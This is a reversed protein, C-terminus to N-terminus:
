VFTIPLDYQQDLGIYCDSLLLVKYTFEGPFLPCVCMLSITSNRKLSIRKMAALGGDPKIIILYWGEQKTKPFRPLFAYNLNDNIRKLSITIDFVKDDLHINNIPKIFVNIRPFKSIQLLLHSVQKGYIGAKRAIREIKEKPTVLLQPLCSIGENEFQKVAKQHVGILTLFPSEDIWRGSGVMQLIEISRIVVETWGKEAVSDIFAQLIRICQDLVSKTDLVFDVIPLTNEGFYASLLLFVKTHPDDYSQRLNGYKVKKALNKCHIDDEHRVPHNNYEAADSIIQLIQAHNLDKKMRTAFMKITRYSIYYMTSLRGNTTTEVDNEDMEICKASVLENLADKVKSVLFKGIQEKGDYGYYNPNKLLRRFYYTFTLFKVAEKVNTVNGVAIEANLQDAMVTEFYSELPFPEFLFKRLFDKKPEYTLIVAVGENDYQPRGARGMMQLVDTLPMDVFQHKKGDFYETGKIIVLHAPLNVGWALTATTILIQIKNSKFLKETIERDHDNLGAHHMGIGYLLCEKLIGDTINKTIESMEEFPMHLFKQPNGDNFCFKVLDQATLRTQRRSSVFIMVPKDPSHLRIAQYCPKNMTAMRPCYAKTPFGDIHAILPVPRLSSHFNFVSDKDVGIWNMMDDVNAIATTLACIRTQIGLKKNIQKTRTVIAEIVPGREEGLLHVEDLIVLGVKQVYSKKTWLRTIGDWKEPTTLIVDAKAIAASDPTFDGTLEVINKGMTILKDKWDSMKEKVLAKMPAIYVVKKDPTDRFIKLMCLEAAVTKGSGTPAGVIVNKNTNFCIFFFQTQPPNFYHFNFFTQYQKLATTPLPHLRLLKTMYSEDTPLTSEDFQVPFNSICAFYKDSVVDVMYQIGSVVPVTAIIEIPIGTGNYDDIKKESLNFSEFYFLQNYNNDSIFLWFNEITGLDNGWRFTPHIHVKMQLVTATLPVCTTELVLYPYEHAQRIVDTAYQPFDIFETKDMECITDIDLKRQQLKLLVQVPLTKFQFLPHVTDWNQQDIMKAIELLNMAERSLGRICALEFLARTVRSANQNAYLTESMLTYNILTIHSLSAQILINAKNSALDNTSSLPWRVSNALTEMEQKEEERMKQLQKLENSSCILDLLQPMQMGEHLKESFIYMSEVTVYYHSAIRGLLTPSFTITEDNITIMQIKELSKATGGILSNLDDYSIGGPSQKLCVYLYTYQFWQLAEELNTVTGSVIEANLHDALGNMLTSKIKGMNGLIAMYKKLGEKDTIIIGAGESDYQPRGARGFMQLVDLISIKDSCGKDSNFVETGRIIVTHAPLNVGWALTATSVLVKLSGNRFADEIFTRDSRFMGANHVGIGMELLEKIDKGQLKKIRTAFERGKNGTFYETAGKEKMRRIFRQATLVTERRTHVFVIVQKGRKVVIEAEDYALDTAHQTFQQGKNEKEDEPLVIFKTSMPVARYSMDFHFINEPKARIFEGVDQYNPLTASLGVVRIPRQQSEVMRLTRAVITEIVAGRDEDLLHVEDVILLQIDNVFEADQKRTLVDFKEPTAVIVHTSAIAAKSINTDGTVEEVRMKFCILHKKFTTTMETALAKLPSIYVIKLHEMDHQHMKVERLMCLLATLTKGCGTPACVLMNEGTNYATEYVKSQVYNLHTYNLMAPRTYDDLINKVELRETNLSRASPVAPIYLEYRDPLNREIANKPIVPKNIQKPPTYSIQDTPKPTKQRKPQKPQNIIQHSLIAPLNQIIGSIFEFSDDGYVEFLSMQLAMEDPNMEVLSEISIELEENSLGLRERLAGTYPSNEIYNHLWTKGENQQQPSPTPNPRKRQRPM